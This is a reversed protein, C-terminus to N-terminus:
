FEKISKELEYKKSFVQKEILMRQDQHQEDREDLYQNLKTPWIM